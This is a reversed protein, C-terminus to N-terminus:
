EVRTSVKGQDVFISVGVESTHGKRPVKVEKELLVPRGLVELPGGGM